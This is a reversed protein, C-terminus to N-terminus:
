GLSFAWAWIRLLGARKGRGALCNLIRQEVRIELSAGRSGAAIREFPGFGPSPLVTFAPDCRKGPVKGRNAECMKGCKGRCIRFGGFGNELLSEAFRFRAAVTLRESDDSAVVSAAVAPWRDCHGDTAIAATTPRRGDDGVVQRGGGGSGCAWQGGGGMAAKSPRHAQPATPPSPRRGTTTCRRAPPPPEQNPVSYEHMIWSGKETNQSNSSSGDKVKFNLHKKLGIVNDHCDKVDSSQAGRWYGSGATREVRSKKMKLKTFVYLSEEANKDFFKWPEKEYVDFEHILEPFVVDGKVKPALCYSIAQEDSPCFRYGIPLTDAM